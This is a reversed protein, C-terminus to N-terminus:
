INDIIVETSSLDIKDLMNCIIKLFDDSLFDNVQKEMKSVNVNEHSTKATPQTPQSEALIAYCKCAIKPEQTRTGAHINQATKKSRM